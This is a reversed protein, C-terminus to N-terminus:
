KNSMKTDMKMEGDFVSGESMSVSPTTINGNVKATKELNLKSEATINGTVIGSSLISKAKIDGDVIASSKITVDSKIDITGEVKGDIHLDDNGTINGKVFLHKGLYSTKQPLEPIELLLENSDDQKRKGFINM